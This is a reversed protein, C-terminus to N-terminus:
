EIQHEVHTIPEPKFDKPPRRSLWILKCYATPMLRGSVGADRLGLFDDFVWPLIRSVTRFMVQLGGYPDPALLRFRKTEGPELVPIRVVWPPDVWEIRKDALWDEVSRFRWAIARVHWTEFTEFPTLFNKQTSILLGTVPSESGNAVAIERPWLYEGPQFDHLVQVDPDDAELLRVDEKMRVEQDWAVRSWLHVQAAQAAIEREKEAWRQNLEHRLLALGLFFALVTGVAAVWDPVTGWDACQFDPRFWSPASSPLWTPQVCTM